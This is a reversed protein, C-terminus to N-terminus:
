MGLTEGSRALVGHVAVESDEFYDPAITGGRLRVPRRDEGLRQAGGSAPLSEHVKNAQRRLLQAIEHGSDPPYPMARASPLLGSCGAGDNLEQPQGVLVVLSESIPEVIRASGWGKIGVFGQALTELM